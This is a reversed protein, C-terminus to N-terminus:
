VVLDYGGWQKALCRDAAEIDAAKTIDLPLVLTGQGMRDALERLKDTRRASIAVSARRQDLSEALAAGIGSSAGIIWVRKGSWDIIKRNLSVANTGM